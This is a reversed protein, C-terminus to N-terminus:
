SAMMVVAWFGSKSGSQHPALQRQMEEGAVVLGIVEKLLSREAVM